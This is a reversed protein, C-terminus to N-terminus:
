MAEVSCLSNINNENRCNYCVFIFVIIYVETEQIHIFVWDILTLNYLLFM